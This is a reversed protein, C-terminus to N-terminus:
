NKPVLSFSFDPNEVIEGQKKFKKLTKRIEDKTCEPDRRLLWHIEAFTRDVEHERYRGGADKWPSYFCSRVRGEVYVSPETFRSASKYTM